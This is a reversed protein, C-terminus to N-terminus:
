KTHEFVRPRNKVRAAIRLAPFNAGILSKVANHGVPDIRRSLDRNATTHQSCCMGTTPPLSDISVPTMIVRNASGQSM